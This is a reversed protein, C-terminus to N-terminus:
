ERVLVSIVVVDSCKNATHPPISEATTDVNHARVPSGVIDSSAESEFISLVMKDVCANPSLATHFYKLIYFKKM